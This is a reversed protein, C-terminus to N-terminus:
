NSEFHFKCHEKHNAFLKLNEIRNDDRINNIHHVVEEPLLYRGLHKEMVLRHELIYGNNSFSHEPSLVMVYGSWKKLKGGKWKANNKGLTQGKKFWGKEGGIFPHGKKFETAPSTHKGKKSTSIRRRIKESHKYGNMFSPHGKLAKSIRDKQEQPM